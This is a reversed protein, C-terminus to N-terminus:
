SVLADRVKLWWSRAASYASFWTAVNEAIWPCLPFALAADARAESADNYNADGCPVLGYFGSVARVATAANAAERTFGLENIFAMVDVALKSAGASVLADHLEFAGTPPEVLVEQWQDCFHTVVSLDAYAVAVYFRTAAAAADAEHKPATRERTGHRPEPVFHGPSWSPPQDTDIAAPGAEPHPASRQPHTFSFGHVRSGPPSGPSHAVAAM